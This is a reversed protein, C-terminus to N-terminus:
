FKEEGIKAIQWAIYINVLHDIRHLDFDTLQEIKRIRNRLTNEHIYLLRACEPIQLRAEFYTVLTSMLETGNERDYTFLDGLMRQSFEQLEYAPQSFVFKLVGMEAFYCPYELAFVRGLELAIKAEQYVKYLYDVSDAFSGVGLGVKPIGQQHLLVTLRELFGDVLQRRKGKNGEPLPVLILLQENIISALPRRRKTLECPVLEKALKMKGGPVEGVVLAWAGSLEWGWARAKANIAAQSDYNNYLIDRIFEAQYVDQEERRSILFRFAQLVVLATERLYQAEQGTLNDESVVFIHGLIRCKAAVPLQFGELRIEGAYWFIRSLHFVEPSLLDVETVADNPGSTLTAVESLSADLRGHSAIVRLFVDTLLVPRSIRNALKRAFFPLDKGEILGQLLEFYFQSLEM